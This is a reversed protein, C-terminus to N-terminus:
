ENPAAGLRTFATAMNEIVACKRTGILAPYVGYKPFLGALTM